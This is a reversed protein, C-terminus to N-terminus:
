HVEVAPSAPAPAAHIPKFLDSKEEEGDEEVGAEQYLQAEHEEENVGEAAVGFVEQVDEDTESLCYVKVDALTKNATAYARAVYPGVTKNEELASKVGHARVVLPDLYPKAQQVYPQSVEVANALYPQGRQVATHVYPQATKLIYATAWSFQSDANHYIDLGRDIWSNSTAQATTLIAKTRKDASDYSKELFESVQAPCRTKVKELLSRFVAAAQEYRTTLSQTTVDRASEVKAVLVNKTAVALKKQEVLSEILRRLSGALKSRLEDFGDDVRIFQRGLIDDLQDILENAKEHDIVVIKSGTKQNIFDTLAVIGDISKDFLAKSHPIAAVTKKVTEYVVTSTLYWPKNTSEISSVFVEAGEPIKDTEHNQIASM